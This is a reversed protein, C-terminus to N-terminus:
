AGVHIKRELEERVQSSLKEKPIIVSHKDELRLVFFDKTRYSKVKSLDVLSKGASSEFVLKSDKVELFGSQPTFRKFQTFVFPKLAFFVGYGICFVGFALGVQETFALMYIGLIILIPGCVYRLARTLLNKHHYYQYLYFKTYDKKTIHLETRM